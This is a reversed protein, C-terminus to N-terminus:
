FIFEVPRIKIPLVSVWISQESAADTEYKIIGILIKGITRRRPVLGQKCM